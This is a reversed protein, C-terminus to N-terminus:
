LMREPQRLCTEVEELLQPTLARWRPRLAYLAALRLTAAARWWSIRNLLEHHSGYAEQFANGASALSRAHQPMQLQRLRVHALFNGLDLAADGATATDLDLLTLHDNGALVQKDYFDRHLLVPAPAGALRDVSTSLRDLCQRPSDGLAPFTTAALDVWTALMTLEDGATRPTAAGLPRGHFERLACGAVAFVRALGATGILEHLTHGPVDQMVLAGRAEDVHLVRPLAFAATGPNLAAFSRHADVLNALRRPRVVKVVVTAPAGSTGSEGALVLRVVCRKLLRYGLVRPRAGAAASVAPGAPDHGVAAAVERRWSESLVAGLRTLAPDHPFV